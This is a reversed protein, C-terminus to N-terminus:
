FVPHCHTPVQEANVWKILGTDFRVLASHVSEETALSTWRDYTGSGDNIVHHVLLSGIRLLHAHDWAHLSM